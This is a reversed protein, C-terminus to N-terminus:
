VGECEGNNVGPLVLVVTRVVLGNDSECSSLVSSEPIPVPLPPSYPNLLACRYRFTDGPGLLLGRGIGGGLGLGLTVLVSSYM